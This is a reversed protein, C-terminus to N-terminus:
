SDIVVFSLPHLRDVVSSLGEQPCTRRQTASMDIVHDAEFRGKVHDVIGPRLYDLADLDEFYIVRNWYSGSGISMNYAPDCARIPSSITQTTCFALFM